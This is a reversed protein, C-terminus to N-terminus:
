SLEEIFRKAIEVSSMADKGFADAGTYEMISQDIDGGGIMVKVSDRIGAKSLAEITQKMVDHTITILGSLALVKAGTEKLKEIFKEASVDEGLDFVEFGNSLLFAVVLNKGIYHVDGAVTGIVIKGSGEEKQTSLLEPELIEMARKFIEASMVLEVLFYENDSFRQGVIDMGKKLDGLIQFPETGEELHKKILAIVTEDEIDAMATILDNMTLKDGDDMINLFLISFTHRKM